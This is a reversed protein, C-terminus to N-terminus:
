RWHKRVLSLIRNMIDVYKALENELDFINFEKRKTLSAFLQEPFVFNLNASKKFYEYIISRLSDGKELKAGCLFINKSHDAIYLYIDNYISDLINKINLEM